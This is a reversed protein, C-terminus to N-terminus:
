QMYGKKARYLAGIGLLAPVNEPVADKVFGLASRRAHDNVLCAGVGSQWAIWRNWNIGIM